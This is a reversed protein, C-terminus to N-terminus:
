VRTISQCSNTGEGSGTRNQSKLLLDYRINLYDFCNTVEKLFKPFTISVTDKQIVQSMVQSLFGYSM